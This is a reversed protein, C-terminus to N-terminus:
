NAWGWRVRLERARLEPGKRGAARPIDQIESSYKSHNKSGWPSFGVWLLRRFNLSDGQVSPLLYFLVLNDPNQDNPEAMKLGLTYTSCTNQFSNQTSLWINLVIDGDNILLGRLPTVAYRYVRNRWVTSSSLFRVWITKDSFSLM